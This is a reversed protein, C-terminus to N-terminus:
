NPSCRNLSVSIRIANRKLPTRLVRSWKRSLRGGDEEVQGERQPSRPGPERRSYLVANGELNAFSAMMWQDSPSTGGNRGNATDRIATLEPDNLDGAEGYSTWIVLLPNQRPIPM